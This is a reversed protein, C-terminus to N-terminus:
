KWGELYGLAELESVDEPNVEELLLNKPDGHRFAATHKIPHQKTGLVVVSDGMASLRNSGDLEVQWPTEGPILVKMLHERRWLATMLSMHYPSGAESRVLDLKGAKGYDTAHGSLERDRTLDFRIVYEFQIMYDYAVQIAEVDVPATIWYDELMICFVDLPYATLLRRLADSWRKVPFQDMPGISHFYFNPPLEFDPPSFGGIIVPPNPQWYKNLLHSFPRLAKLYSDSTLVYLPTTM